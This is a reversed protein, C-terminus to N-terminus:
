FAMLTETILVKRKVFTSYGVNLNTIMLIKFTELRSKTLSNSLKLMRFLSVDSSNERKKFYSDEM